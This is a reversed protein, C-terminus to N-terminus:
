HRVRGQYVPNKAIKICAANDVHMAPTESLPFGIETMLNKLYFVGQTAAGASIYEAEASSLALTKQLQSSWEIVCGNLYIVKGSTSRAQNLDGAWDSDSFCDLVIDEKRAKYTLGHSKTTALYM